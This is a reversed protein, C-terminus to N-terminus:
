SSPQAERARELAAGFTGNVPTHPNAIRGFAKLDVTQGFVRYAFMSPGCEVFTAEPDVSRAWQALLCDGSLTFCYEAEPDKTELWAILAGLSFPDAKVEPKEWKPDYLM